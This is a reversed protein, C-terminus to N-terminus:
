TVDKLRKVRKMIREGIASGRGGPFEEFYRDVEQAAEEAQKLKKLCLTLRDLIVLEGWKPDDSLEAVIGHEIIQDLHRKM